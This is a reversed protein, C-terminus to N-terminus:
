WFRFDDWLGRSLVTKPTRFTMHSTEDPRSAMAMQQLSFRLLHKHQGHLRFVFPPSSSVKYLHRLTCALTCEGHHLIVGHWDFFTRTFSTEKKERCARAWRAWFPVLCCCFISPILLRLNTRHAFSLTCCFELCMKFTVSLVRLLYLLLAVGPAGHFIGPSSLHPLQLSNKGMQSGPISCELGYTVSAMSKTFLWPPTAKKLHKVRVCLMWRTHKKVFREDELFDKLLYVSAACQLSTRKRKAFQHNSNHSDAELGTVLKIEWNFSTHGPPVLVWSTVVGYGSMEPVELSFHRNVISLSKTSEACDALPLFIYMQQYNQQMTLHTQVDSSHWSYAVLNIESSPWQHLITCTGLHANKERMGCLVCESTGTKIKKRNWCSLAHRAQAKQSLALEELFSFNRQPWLFHQSCHINYGPSHPVRTTSTEGSAFFARQTQVIQTPHPIKFTEDTQGRTKSKRLNIAACCIVLHSSFGPFQLCLILGYIM